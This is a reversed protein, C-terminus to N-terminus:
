GKLKIVIHREEGEGESVTEIKEDESLALHIIRREFSSMPVLCQEKGNSEVREALELASDRLQDERQKRYGDVDVLVRFEGIQRYAMQSLITQLAFLNRGHHGILVAPDKPTLNIKILDDEKLVEVEAEVELGKLLDTALKKLTKIKSIETEEVM